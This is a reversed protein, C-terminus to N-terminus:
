RWRRCGRAAGRRGPAASPPACPAACGSCRRAPPCGASRRRACPAPPRRRPFPPGILGTAAPSSPSSASSSTSASAGRAQLQVRPQLAQALALGAEGGGHDLQVLGGGPGLGPKRRQLRGGLRACSSRSARMSVARPKTTLSSRAPASACRSSSPGGARGARSAVARRRWPRWRRGPPPGGRRAREAAQLRGRGAARRTGSEVVLQELRAQATAFPEARQMRGSAVSSGM